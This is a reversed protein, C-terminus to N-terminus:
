EIEDRPMFYTPNSIRKGSYSSLEETGWMEAYERALGDCIDNVSCKRCAPGKKRMTHMRARQLAMHLKNDLDARYLYPNELCLMAGFAVSGLFFPWKKKFIVDLCYDWEVKEYQLQYLPKVHPEYGKMVCYPVDRVNIHPVTRRHKDIARKIPEAIERYSRIKISGEAKLADRTPQFVIFNIANPNFSAMLDAANEVEDFNRECVVYNFRFRLGEIGSVRRATNLVREYSGTRGTFEEHTADVAGHLSILIDNLGKEVLHEIYGEKSGVVSGNTIICVTEYGISRAYAVIEPLDPRLTPEGGTLDVATKGWERGVRLRRKIEETSLDKTDGAKISELYYCFKCRLNCKFGVNIDFRRTVTNKHNEREPDFLVEGEPSVLAYPEACIRSENMM